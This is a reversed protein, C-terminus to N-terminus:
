PFKMILHTFFNLLSAGMATHFAKETKNVDKVTASYECEFLLPVGTSYLDPFGIEIDRTTKDIKVMNPM